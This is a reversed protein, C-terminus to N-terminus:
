EPDQDLVTFFSVTVEDAPDKAAAILALLEVFNRGQHGMRIYPDHLEIETANRLYPVLLTEYSIGRQNELSNRQERFLEAQGSGSAFSHCM